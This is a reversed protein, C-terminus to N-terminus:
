KENNETNKRFAKYMAEFFLEGIFEYGDQTLHVGDTRILKYKKWTMASGKGGTISFIDWYALQHDKAYKVIVDRTKVINPHPKRYKSSRFRYWTETPTTLLFVAEPYQVQIHKM